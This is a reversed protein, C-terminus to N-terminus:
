MINIEPDSVEAEDVLGTLQKAITRITEAALGGSTVIPEGQDGWCGALMLAVGAASWISLCRM